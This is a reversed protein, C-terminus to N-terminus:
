LQILILASGVVALVIAYGAALRSRLLTRDAHARLRRRADVLPERWDGGAIVRRNAEAWALLADAERREEASELADAAARVEPREVSSGLVREM